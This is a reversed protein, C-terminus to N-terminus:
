GLLFARAKNKCINLKRVSARSQFGDIVEEGCELNRHDEDRGVGFEGEGALPRPRGKKKGLRVLLGGDGREDALRQKKFAVRDLALSTRETSSSSRGSVGGKKKASRATLATLAQAQRKGA